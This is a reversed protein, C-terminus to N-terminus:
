NGAPAAFGFWRAAAGIVALSWIIFVVITIRRSGTRELFYRQVATLIVASGAAWVLFAAAWGWGIWQQFIDSIPKM